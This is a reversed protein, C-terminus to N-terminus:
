SIDEDDPGFYDEDMPQWMLFDILASEQADYDVEGDYDGDYLKNTIAETIGGDDQASRRDRATEVGCAKRARKCCPCNQRRVDYSPM